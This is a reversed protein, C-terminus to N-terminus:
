IVRFSRGGDTWDTTGRNAAASSTARNLWPSLVSTNAWKKPKILPSIRPNTKKGRFRTREGVRFSGIASIILRAMRAPAAQDPCTQKKEAVSPMSKKELASYSLANKQM